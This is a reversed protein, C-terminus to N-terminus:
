LTEFKWNGSNWIRTYGSQQMNEWETLSPDFRELIFPLKRKQFKQRPERGSNKFYWYNPATLGLPIFQAQEYVAGVSLDANAYTVISGPYKHRFASLLRTFAGAVSWGKRLAFRLIEYDHDTYRSKGVSLGAVIRRNYFLGVNHSSGVARGDLHHDNFWTSKIAAIQCKRAGVRNDILGLKARLMSMLIDKKQHWQDEWLTLLQIGAEKCKVMKEQHYYKSKGGLESHYYLGNCEVAIQYEPLLIDLEYPKIISRNRTEVETYAALFDRIEREWPSDGHHAFPTCVPCRPVFSNHTIISTFNTACDPCEFPYTNWKNGDQMGHKAVYEALTFKPITTKLLVSYSQGLKQKRQSDIFEASEFFHDVGYREQNTKKIKAQITPSQAVNNAGYRAQVTKQIRSSIGAIQSPCTVGYKDQFAKVRNLRTSEAANACALSCFVHEKAPNIVIRILAGCPCYKGHEHGLIINNVREAMTANHPLFSTIAVVLRRVDERHTCYNSLRPRLFAAWGINKPKVLGQKSLLAILKLQSYNAKM